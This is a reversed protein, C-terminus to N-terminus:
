VGIEQLEKTFLPNQVIFERTEIQISGFFDIGFCFESFDLRFDWTEREVGRIEINWITPM